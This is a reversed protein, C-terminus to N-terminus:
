SFSSFSQWAQTITNCKPLLWMLSNLHCDAVVWMLVYVMDSIPAAKNWCQVVKGYLTLPVNCMCSWWVFAIFFEQAILWTVLSYFHFTTSIMEPMIKLYLYTTNIFHLGRGWCVYLYCSPPNITNGVMRFCSSWMDLNLLFCEVETVVASLWVTQSPLPKNNSV